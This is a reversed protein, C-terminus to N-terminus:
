HKDSFPLDFQRPRQKVERLLAMLAPIPYSWEHTWSKGVVPDKIAEQNYMLCWHHLWRAYRSFHEPPLQRILDNEGVFAELTKRKVAEEFAQDAREVAQEATTYAQEARSEAREATTHADTAKSEAREAIQQIHNAQHVLNIIAQYAPPLEPQPQATRTHQLEAECEIFYDRVEHGKEVGSVMCIHKAAEFTFRYEISPRGRESNIGQQTYIRFDKNETLHARKIQIKIWNGFPKAVGLFRYIDRGDVTPQLKDNLVEMTHPILATTPM